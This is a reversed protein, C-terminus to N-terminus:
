SARQYRGVLRATGLTHGALANELDKRSNGRAQLSPVDVAYVTFIYRHPGHARPPCPGGYAARGFDNRLTKDGNAILEASGAAIDYALWHTFKGAPADPDDMIVALSRTGPPPDSVTLPPPADNADCTFQRPTTSGDAFAPTTVTFAMSGDGGRAFNGVLTGARQAPGRTDRSEGVVSTNNWAVPRTDSRTSRRQTPHRRWRASWARPARTRFPTRACTGVPARCGVRAVLAR